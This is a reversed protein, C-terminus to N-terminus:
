AQKVGINPEVTVDSVFNTPLFIFQFPWFTLLFVILTPLSSASGTEFFRLSHEFSPPPHTPSRTIAFENEREGMRGKAGDERM